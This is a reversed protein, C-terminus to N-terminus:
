KELTTALSPLIPKPLMPKVSIMSRSTTTSNSNPAL